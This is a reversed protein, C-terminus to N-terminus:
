VWTAEWGTLEFVIMMFHRNNPSDVYIDFDGCIECLFSVQLYHFLKCGLNALPVTTMSSQRILIGIITLPAAVLSVLLDAFCLALLLPNRSRSASQSCLSFLLTSNGFTGSFVVIGYLIILSLLTLSTFLELEHNFDAYDLSRTTQNIFRVSSDSSKSTSISSITTSTIITIKRSANRITILNRLWEKDDM